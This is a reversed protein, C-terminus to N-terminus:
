CAEQVSISLGLKQAHQVFEPYSTAVNRTDQVRGGGARMLGLSLAMACRHDGHSDVEAPRVSGGHIEVGDPYETLRVGMSVLADAMVSIRDSEKARLEEAGSLRTVGRAFSAAVFLAPFEDIAAPVDEADIEIGHLQAHRVRIDAVPEGCVEQENMMEINAGMRKLLQYGGIRTPNIGVGELLLDSGPFLSAALAWFFASSPDVPVQIAGSSRLEAPGDIKITCGDVRVDVGFGRLMRETHDRTPRPEIVTTTGQAYLGALLVCSKVQASAMPVEYHFSKLGNSASIRLPCCGKNTEIHAGMARLPDVIRAMPRVSLSADGILETAFPQASLIGSMLRISTGSNGFDLAKQPRQLGHMGVGDVIWHEGDTRIPVGMAQMAAKTGLVDEGELLGDIRTQGLAIASFMLSRHSISKDGSATLNGTLSCHEQVLFSQVETSSM